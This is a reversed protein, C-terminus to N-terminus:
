NENIIFLTDHNLPKEGKYELFQSKRFAMIFKKKPECEEYCTDCIVLDYKKTALKQQVDSFVNAVEVIFGLEQFHREMIGSVRKQDECILMKRREM